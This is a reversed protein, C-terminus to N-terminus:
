PAGDKGLGFEHVIGDVLEICESKIAGMPVAPQGDVFLNPSQRALEFASAVNNCVLDIIHGKITQIDELSLAARVRGVVPTEVIPLEGAQGFWAIFVGTCEDCLHASENVGISPSTSAAIKAWGMMFAQADAERKCRDCRYMEITSITM